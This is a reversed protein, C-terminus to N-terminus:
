AETRECSGGYVEHWCHVHMPEFTAKHLPFTDGPKGGLPKGCDCCLDASHDTPPRTPAAERSQSLIAPMRFGNRPKPPRDAHAIFRDIHTGDRLVLDLSDYTTGADNDGQNYPTRKCGDIAKCCAAEDYGLKLAREIVGRRKPDLNAGPHGMVKQWHEFVRRVIASTAQAKGPVPVQVAPSPVGTPLASPAAPQPQDERAITRPLPKNKSKPEETGRNGPEGTGAVRAHPTIKSATERSDRSPTALTDRSFRPVKAYGDQFSVPLLELVETPIPPLFTRGPHDVRQHEHFHVVAAFVDSGVQWSLLLGLEILRSIVKKAEAITRDQHEWVGSRLSGASLRLVGSDDAESWTWVFALRVADTEAGLKEDGWFEPKLSRIRM